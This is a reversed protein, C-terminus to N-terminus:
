NAWFVVVALTNTIAGSDVVTVTVQRDSNAATDVTTDVTYALGAITNTRTIGASTTATNTIYRAAVETDGVSLSSNSGLVDYGLIVEFVVAGLPLKTGIQIISGVAISTAEYTDYKVKLLADSGPANTHDATAVDAITKLAGKYTVM